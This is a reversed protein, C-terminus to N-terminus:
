TSYPGMSYTPALRARPWYIVLALLQSAMYRLGYPLQSIVVRVMDSLRWLSRFWAPKNDFRYYLYVLFVGGPKLLKVCDAMAQRTDPIHHLVGLSYGFDMTAPAIGPDEIGTKHFTVNANQALNSKAVAMAASPEICHLQKVRPAVLVAWRGTGCGADFGVPDPPLEDWPFISFYSDFLSHRDQDSLQSQDFRTWEDGFGEVTLADSNKM